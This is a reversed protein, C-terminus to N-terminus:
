ETLGPMLTRQRYAAPQDSPVQGFGLPRSSQVPSIEVQVSGLLEEPKGASYRVESSRSIQVRPGSSVRFLVEVQGLIIHSAQVFQNPCLKRRVIM